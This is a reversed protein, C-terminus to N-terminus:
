DKQVVMREPALPYTNQADHLVERYELDAKVIYGDPSNVQHNTISKETQWLRRGM